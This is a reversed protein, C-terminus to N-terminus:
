WAVGRCLTAGTRSVDWNTLEACQFDNDINSFVGGAKWMNCVFVCCVMSPGMAPKGYRTTNYMWGDQEM